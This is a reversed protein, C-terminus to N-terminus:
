VKRELKTSKEIHNKWGSTPKFDLTESIENLGKNNWIPNNSIIRLDRPYNESIKMRKIDFLKHLQPIKLYDLNLLEVIGLDVMLPDSGGILIGLKKPTPELPGESEGAIIGDCFYIRKRQKTNTLNGSKDVYLLIQNLDAVTRWITDNGYWSGEFYNSKYFRAAFKYLIARIPMTSYFVLNYTNARKTLLQDIYEVINVYLRKLVNIEPYEDGGELISGKRHHPLWDKHGNIGVNNKLCSTIGAKRHSKIKPIQIVVDSKLVSNPILYKHDKNNHVHEMLLHDYNTVRFKKYGEKESIKKLNSKRELNVVKYGSPDGRLKHTKENKYSKTLKTYLKNTSISMKETRFDILEIDLGNLRMFDIVENLGNKKALLKFNCQQLPADGIIIKGTGNLAKKVYDILVRIISTHTTIANQNQFNDIVLNPKLLVQDGPSIINKFPNWSKTNWHDTDLNMLRLLNRFSEYIYNHDKTIDDFEYEPYKKDPNFPPTDPYVAKELKNVFVNSTEM